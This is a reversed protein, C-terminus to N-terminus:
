RKHNTEPVHPLIEAFSAHLSEDSAALMQIHLLSGPTAQETVDARQQSLAVAAGLIKDGYFAAM